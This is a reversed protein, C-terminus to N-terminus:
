APQQVGARAIIERWTAIERAVHQTMEDPTSTVALAGQALFAERLRPRQAAAVIERNLRAVIDPPTGAPAAVGWWYTMDYAPFGAEIFTPIEPLLPSRQTGSVALGVLAGGKVQAVGSALSAISVDVREAVVEAIAAAVGRFPVHLLRINAAIQLQETALHASSGQGGSGFTIESPRARAKAVLEAVSRVGLGSRALLISPSDAIRSIQVFDKLPDYPLNGYLGASMAFSNDTLLLTTGDPASRAAVATGLTGGAGGRNEVVVQQGLLETLEVGLLRASADTFSGPVFPVIIKIPRNPWSAQAFAPLPLMAPLLAARLLDRRIM